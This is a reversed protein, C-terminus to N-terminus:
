EEVREQEDICKKIIVNRKTFKKKKGRSIVDEDLEGYLLDGNNKSIYILGSYLSKSKLATKTSDDQMYIDSPESSYSVIWCPETLYSSEGLLRMYLQDNLYYSADSYVGSGIPVIKKTMEDVVKLSTDFQVKTMESNAMCLFADFTIVDIAQMVLLYVSPLKPFRDFSENLSPIPSKQEAEKYYEKKVDEDQLCFQCSYFEANKAFTWVKGLPNGGSLYDTEVFTYKTYGVNDVPIDYIERNVISHLKSKSQSGDELNVHTNQMVIDFTTRYGLNIYSVCRDM